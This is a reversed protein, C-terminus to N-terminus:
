EEVSILEVPNTVLVVNEGDFIAAVIWVTGAVLPASGPLSTEISATGEEDLYGAIGPSEGAAGCYLATLDDFGVPIETEGVMFTGDVGVDSVFIQYPLGAMSESGSLSLSVDGFGAEAVEVEPCFLTLLTNGWYFFNYGHQEKNSYNADIWDPQNDELRNVQAFEGYGTGDNELGILEVCPSFQLNGVTSENFFLFDFTGPVSPDTGLKSLYPYPEPKEDSTSRCTEELDNRNSFAVDPLGDHNV